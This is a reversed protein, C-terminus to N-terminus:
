KCLKPNNSAIYIKYECMTLKFDMKSEGCSSCTKYTRNIYKSKLSPDKNQYQYKLKLSFIGETLEVIDNIELLNEKILQDKHLKKIATILYDNM